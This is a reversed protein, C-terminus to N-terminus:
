HMTRFITQCVLVICAEYFMWSKSGKNNNDREDQIIVAKQIEEDLRTTKMEILTAVERFRLHPSELLRAYLAEWYATHFLNYFDFSRMSRSINRRQETIEVLAQQEMAALLNVEELQRDLIKDFAHNLASQM